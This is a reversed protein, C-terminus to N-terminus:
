QERRLVVQGTAGYCLRTQEEGSPIETGVDALATIIKTHLIVEQLKLLTDFSSKVSPDIM